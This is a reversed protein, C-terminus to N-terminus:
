ITREETQYKMSQMENGDDDMDDYGESGKTSKDYMLAIISLVLTGAYIAAGEFCVTGTEKVDALAENKDM